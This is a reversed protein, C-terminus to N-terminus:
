SIGKIPKVGGDYTSPIFLVDYKNTSSDPAFRNIEGSSNVELIQGSNESGYVPANHFHVIIPSSEHVKDDELYEFKL